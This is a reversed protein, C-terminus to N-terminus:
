EIVGLNKLRNRKSKSLGDGPENKTVPVAVVGSQMIKKMEALEDMVLLIHSVILDIKSTKEQYVRGMDRFLDSQSRGDARAKEFLAILDADRETDCSFGGLIVRAMKRGWTPRSSPL